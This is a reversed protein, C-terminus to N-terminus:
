LRMLRLPQPGPAAVQKHRACHTALRVGEDELIEDSPGLEVIVTISVGVGALLAALVEGLTSDVTERRVDGLFAWSYGVGVAHAGTKLKMTDSMGSGSCLSALGIAVRAIVTLLSEKRTQWLAPASELSKCFSRSLYVQVFVVPCGRALIMGVGGVGGIPIKRRSIAELNLFLESELVRWGAVAPLRLIAPFTQPEEL